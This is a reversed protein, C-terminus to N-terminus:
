EPFPNKPKKSAGHDFIMIKKQIMGFFRGNRTAKQRKKQFRIRKSFFFRVVFQLFFFVYFVTFGNFHYHNIIVKLSNMQITESSSKNQLPAFCCPLFPSKCREHYNAMNKDSLNRRAAHSPISPPKITVWFVECQQCKEQM